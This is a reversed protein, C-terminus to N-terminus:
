PLSVPSRMVYGHIGIMFICTVLEPFDIASFNEIVIYDVGAELL